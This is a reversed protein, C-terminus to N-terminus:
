LFITIIRLPSLLFCAALLQPPSDEWRIRSLLCSEVTESDRLLSLPPCVFATFRFDKNCLAKHLITRTDNGPRNRTFLQYLVREM